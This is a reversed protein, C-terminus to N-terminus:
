GRLKFIPGLMAAIKLNARVLSNFRPTDIRPTGTVDVQEFTGNKAIWLLAPWTNTLNSQTQAFYTALVPNSYGKMGCLIDSVGFRRRCYFCVIWEALRQPAARIGLVLDAGSVRQKVFEEVIHPDHEGDADLTVVFDYGLDYAHRLGQEIAGEYRQRGSTPVVTAGAATSLEQSGDTSGDEIVFVQGFPVAGRVVAEITMAENYCPIVIAVKSHEPVTIRLGGM